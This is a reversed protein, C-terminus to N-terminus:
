LFDLANKITPIKFVPKNFYLHSLKQKRDTSTTTFTVLMGVEM